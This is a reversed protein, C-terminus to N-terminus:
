YKQLRFRVKELKTDRMDGDWPLREVLAIFEKAYRLSKEANQLKAYMHSLSEVCNAEIEAFAEQFSGFHNPRRIM